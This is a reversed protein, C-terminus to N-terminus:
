NEPRYSDIKECLHEGIEVMFKLVIPLMDDSFTKPFNGAEYTLEGDYDIEGLARCVEEWDIKGQGPLLHHDNVYDNDHVHLSHLYKHGLQRICDQPELGVLGVHGIDLCAVFHETGGLDDIYRILEEMRSCSDHCIRKTKVERQWMNEICIKYGYKECYPIMTRFFRMNYDYVEEEHGPYVMHHIPHVVVYKVGMIGCIDLARYHVPGIFREWEGEDDWKFHFPLHAQNYTIGQEDSYARLDKANAEWDPSNFYSDAKSMHFLSLDLMKFGAAKFMDLAKKDGFRDRIVSTATSIYM